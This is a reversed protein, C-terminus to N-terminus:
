ALIDDHDDDTKAHYNAAEPKPKMEPDKVGVKCTDVVVRLILYSEFTETLDRELNRL